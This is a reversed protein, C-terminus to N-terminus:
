CARVYLGIPAPNYDQFYELAFGGSGSMEFGVTGPTCKHDAIWYTTGPRVPVDNLHAHKVPRNACTTGRETQGVVDFSALGKGSFKYSSTKLEKQEPFFFFLSCTKGAYAQPIDFNFITSVSDSILPSYVSGHSKQPEATSIPV